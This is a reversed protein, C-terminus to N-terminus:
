KNWKGISRRLKIPLNDFVQRPYSKEMFRNTLNEFDIKVQFTSSLEQLYKDIDLPKENQMLRLYAAM